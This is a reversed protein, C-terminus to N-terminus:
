FLIMSQIQAYYTNAGGIKRLVAGPMFYALTFTLVQHRSQRWHLIADPASGIYKGRINSTRFYPNFANYGDATGNYVADGQNQRYYFTWAVDLSTNHDFTVSGRPSFDITNSQSTALGDSYFPARYYLPQYTIIQGDGPTGSAGGSGGDFRMGLKFKHPSNRWVYDTQTTFMWARVSNGATNGTQLVGTYDFDIPGLGGYYRIGFSNRVDAGAIYHPMPGRGPVRMAADQYSNTDATYRLFFPDIASSLPWGGLRASPLAFSGYVGYLHLGTNLKGSLTPDEYITPILDLLDVRGPGWDAYLRAGNWSTPINALDRNCIVLGNGLWLEQRGLRAGYQTGGVTDTLETFANYIGFNANTSGKAEAPGVYQGDIGELYFRFHSGFHMDAGITTRSEFENTSSAPSKVVNMNNHDYYLREGANLTLWSDRADDLAIFKYPAVTASATSANRQGSYDEDFRLLYQNDRGPGRGRGSLPQPVAPIVPLPAKYATAHTHAKSKQKRAHKPPALPAAAATDAPAVAGHANLAVLCTM